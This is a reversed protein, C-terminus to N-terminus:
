RSSINRLRSLFEFEAPHLKERAAEFTFFGARDIEPFTAMRGSKPPWQMEFTNSKLSSPDFDGAFAWAHVTKGSKHKV